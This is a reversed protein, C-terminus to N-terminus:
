EAPSGPASSSARPSSPTRAEVSDHTSHEHSQAALLRNLAALYAKTSAVIVDTDAAHGHYIPIQVDYQPNLRGDRDCSRVRVSAEGLADIGETIANLSYELLEAPARVIHDIATFVAHLPGTGVAAQTRVQGDPGRVRVTATPMGSTGCSVQLGELVFLEPGRGLESSVLAELDADTIRKKKDALVKFRSFAKDLAEGDLPIGLERLRVAFAHRGSHKGLVLLSKAAGVTEPRMIEYTEEHKLM